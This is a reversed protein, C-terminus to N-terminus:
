GGLIMGGPDPHNAGEGSGKEPREATVAPAAARRAVWGAREYDLLQDDRAAAERAERGAGVGRVLRRGEALDDGDNLREDGLPDGHGREGLPEAAVRRPDVAALDPAPDRLQQGPGLHQEGVDQAVEALAAVLEEDVPGRRGRARRGPGEGVPLVVDPAEGVQEGGAALQAVHEDGVPILVGVRLKGVKQEQESLAM